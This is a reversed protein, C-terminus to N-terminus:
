RKEIGLMSFFFSSFIGQVGLVMLTAGVLAPALADLYAFDAEIWRALVWLNIGFGVAFVVGAVLLGRELTIWTTAKEIAPDEDFKDVHAYVKAFLGTIIIQTGTITMMMGLVMSHVGFTVKGITLPGPALALLIGLGSVALLGGPILYLWKPSYLLMFRLHRWGDRFSRLHPPRSRGDPHYVIPVETIRLGAKAMKVIMESAFEMGTGVLNLRGYAEKTFARMGCHADSVNTGFFLNLIRTLVPNGVYRHLWPMAGPLIVGGLRSGIVVDYGERLRKIFSNLQSFDYSDDSDGIVIFRGRAAELGGIYAAGYGKRKVHVVRASLSKAIEVSRDTSGNDAVIVEGSINAAELAGQAKRICTALTEEENLCPMVVSVEPDMPATTM